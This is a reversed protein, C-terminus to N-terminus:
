KNIEALVIAPDENLDECIKVFTTLRLDRADKEITALTTAHIGTTPAMTYWTKNQALRSAKMWNAFRQLMNM